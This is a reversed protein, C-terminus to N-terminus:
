KGINRDENAEDEYRLLLKKEIAELAMNWYRTETFGWYNDRAAMNKKLLRVAALTDARERLAGQQFAINNGLMIRSGM